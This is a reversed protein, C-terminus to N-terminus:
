RNRAHSGRSVLSYISLLVWAGVKGIEALADASRIAFQYPNLHYQYPRQKLAFKVVFSLSLRVLALTVLIRLSM